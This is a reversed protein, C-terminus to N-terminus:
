RTRVVVQLGAVSEGNVTVPVSTGHEDRFQVTLGNRTETIVGRGGGGTFTTGGSVFSGASAAERAIVTPPTAVLTYSGNVVADLTFAGTASTRSQGSGYVPFPDAAPGQPQVRVMVGEVPKGNGDVVVGSVQYAAATVLRVDGINVTEGSVVRTAQASADDATGPAYTPVVTTSSAAGSTATGRFMSRPQVRVVYENAPLSHIRFEGLENTPVSGGVPMLRPMAAPGFPGPMNPPAGGRDKFPNPRMAMVMAEAVPEGQGDVVRGVIVGGRVLPLELDRVHDTLEVLPPPPGGPMMTTAFGAKQAFARYRGPELGRFEFRGSADTTASLPRFTFPNPPPGGKFDPTLRVEAGVVPARTGQELVIGSVTTDPTTARAAPTAPAPPQAQGLAVTVVFALFHMM